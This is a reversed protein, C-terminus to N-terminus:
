YISFKLLKSRNKLKAISYVAEVDFRGLTDFKLDSGNFKIKFYLKNSHHDLSLVFDTDYFIGLPCVPEYVDTASSILMVHVAAEYRAWGTMRFRLLIRGVIRCKMVYRSISRHYYCGEGLRHKFQVCWSCSYFCRKPPGVTCVDILHGFQWAFM